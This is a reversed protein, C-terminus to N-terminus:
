AFRALSVSLSQRHPLVGAKREERGATAGGGGHAALLGPSGLAAATATCLLTRPHSPTPPTPCLSLRQCSALAIWTSCVCPHPASSGPHLHVLLLAGERAGAVWAGGAVLAAGCEAEGAQGPSWVVGGWGCRHRWTRCALPTSTPLTSTRASTSLSSTGAPHLPPPAPHKTPNLGQSISM